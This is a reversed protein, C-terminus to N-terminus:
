CTSLVWSIAQGGVNPVCESDQYQMSPLASAWCSLALEALTLTQSSQLLPPLTFAGLACFLWTWSTAPVRDIASYHQSELMTCSGQLAPRTPPGPTIESDASTRMLLRLACLVHCLLM